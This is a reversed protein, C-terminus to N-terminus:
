VFCKDFSASTCSHTFSFCANYALGCLVCANDSDKARSRVQHGACAPVRLNSMWDSVLGADPMGGLKIGGMCEAVRPLM